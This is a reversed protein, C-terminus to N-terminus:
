RGLDSGRGGNPEVGSVEDLGGLVQDGKVGSGSAPGAGLIAGSSAGVEYSPGEEHVQGGAGFAPGASGSRPNPRGEEVSSAFLVGPSFDRGGESQIYAHTGLSPLVSTRTAEQSGPECPARGGIKDVLRTSGWDQKEEM